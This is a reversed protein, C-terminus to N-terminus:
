EVVAPSENVPAPDISPGKRVLEDLASEHLTRGFRDHDARGLSTLGGAGLCVRPGRPLGLRVIWDVLQM